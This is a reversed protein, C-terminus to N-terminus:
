GGVVLGALMSASMIASSPSTAASGTATTYAGVATWGEEGAARATASGVPTVGPYCARRTPSRCARTHRAREM